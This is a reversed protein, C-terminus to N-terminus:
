ELFTTVGGDPSLLLRITAQNKNKLPSVFKEGMLPINTYDLFIESAKGIPIIRKISGNANIILRYEITQNLEKPPQWTQQFYNKVEQLQNNQLSESDAGSNIALLPSNNSDTPLNNSLTPVSNPLTSSSRQSLNESLAPNTEMNSATSNKGTEASVNIRSEVQSFNPDPQSKEETKPNTAIPNPAPPPIVLNGEPIPFKAPDPIDPPPKPTDVTPPPPLKEASSIPETIKPKPPIKTEEPPPQPPIVDDFDLPNNQTEPAQITAVSESESAQKQVLKTGVTTLGIALVLGAVGRLWLPVIKRSKSNTNNPLIAVKTQYEELATVLDFLQVTSLNIPSKEVDQIFLQHSVLGLPHLYVSTNNSVQTINNNPFSEIPFSQQLIKQVYNLVAEYIEELKLRDGSLTVKQEEPLTPDDFSLKFHIDKVIEKNTWKSLPSQKGWIELTCTPPTLRHIVSHSSSIM